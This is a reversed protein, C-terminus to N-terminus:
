HGCLAPGWQCSSTSTPGLPAVPTVGRDDPTNVGILLLLGIGLALLGVVIAAAIGMRKLLEPRKEPPTALIAAGAGRSACRTRKSPWAPASRPAARLPLWRRPCPFPVGLLSPCNSPNM